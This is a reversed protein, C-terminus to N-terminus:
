RAMLGDRYTKFSPCFSDARHGHERDEDAAFCIACMFSHATCDRVCSKGACDTCRGINECRGAIDGIEQCNFYRATPIYGVMRYRNLDICIRRKNLLYGFSDADDDLM